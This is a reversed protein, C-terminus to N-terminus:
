LYKGRTKGRKAIGDAAKVYGGKKANIVPTNSAQIDSVVERTNQARDFPGSLSPAQPINAGVAITGGDAYRKKM